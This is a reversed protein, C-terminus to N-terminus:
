SKFLVNFFNKMYEASIIGAQIAINSIIPENNKVNISHEYM